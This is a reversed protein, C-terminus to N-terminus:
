RSCCKKFRKGSGCYCLDNRGIKKGGHGIQIGKKLAVKSIEELEKDEKWPEKNFAIADVLNPSGFISGLALWVEAKTQYKKSVAHVMLRKELQEPTGPLSIFTVGSKGKEFIMSFDHLQKDQRTKEKTQEMVRILDDAGEGAM